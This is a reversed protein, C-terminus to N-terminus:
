TKLGLAFAPPEVPRPDGIRFPRAHQEDAVGNEVTIELTHDGRELALGVHVGPHVRMPLGFARVLQEGVDQRISRVIDHVKVHTQM